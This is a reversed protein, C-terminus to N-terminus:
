VMAGMTHWELGTNSVMASATNCFLSGRLMELWHIDNVVLTEFWDFSITPLWDFDNSLM